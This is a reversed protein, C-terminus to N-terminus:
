RKARESTVGDTGEQRSKWRRHLWYWQEPHSRVFDDVYRTITATDRALAEDTMEDDPFTVEPYIIMRQNKGDSFIFGPVLPVGTKRSMLVPMSTTWAPRGLFEVQYGETPMVAQDILVGTVGNKKFIRFMERLANKKYILTNGYRTRMEEICRTLYPNKQERVMVVFPDHRHGFALAMIEWNGCHGTIFMVGKGKAKAAQYNELGDITVNDLISGFGHYLKCNELFARGLGSFCERAIRVPDSGPPFCPLSGTIGDLAIRRRSGLIRYCLGGVASGITPIFRTPILALIFTGGKFLAAQSQWIMKQRIGPAGSKDQHPTTM